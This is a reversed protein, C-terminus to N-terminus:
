QEPIEKLRRISKDIRQALPAYPNLTAKRERLIAIAFEVDGYSEMQKKTWREAM